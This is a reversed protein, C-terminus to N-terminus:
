HDISWEDVVLAMYDKCKVTDHVSYPGETTLLGATANSQLLMDEKSKERSYMETTRWTMHLIAM